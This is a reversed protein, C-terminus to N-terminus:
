SARSVRSARSATFAYCGGTVNRGHVFDIDDHALVEAVAGAVSNEADVTVVRHYAIRRDHGYPRLTIAREDIEDPLGTRPEVGPCGDAHVVIPGTEAYPGDWPFPSWAIIAVREGPAADTLCCRMSWWGEAEFPEIPNGAPDVGADLCARLQELDVGTTFVVDSM